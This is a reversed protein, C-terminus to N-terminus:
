AASVLSQDDTRGDWASLSARSAICIVGQDSGGVPMAEGKLFVVCQHTRVEGQNEILTWGAQFITAESSAHIEHPILLVVLKPHSNRVRAIWGIVYGEREERPRCGDPRRFTVPKEEILLFAPFSPKKRGPILARGPIIPVERLYAHHRDPFPRLETSKSAPM